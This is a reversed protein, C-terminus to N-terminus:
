DEPSTPTTAMGIVPLEKRMVLVAMSMIMMWDDDNVCSWCWVVSRLVAASDPFATLHLYSQMLEAEGDSELSLGHSKAAYRLADRVVKLCVCVLM